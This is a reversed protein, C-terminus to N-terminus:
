GQQENPQNTIEYNYGNLPRSHLLARRCRHYSIGEKAMDKLWSQKSYWQQGTEVCRIHIRVSTGQSRSVKGNEIM